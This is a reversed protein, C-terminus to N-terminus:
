LRASESFTVNRNGRFDGVLWTSAFISSIGAGLVLKLDGLARGAGAEPPREREREREIDKGGGRAAGARLAGGEGAARDM